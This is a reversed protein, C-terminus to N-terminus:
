KKINKVQHANHNSRMLEFCRDWDWINERDYDYRFESHCKWCSFLDDCDMEYCEVNNNWCKPCTWNTITEYNIDYRKM